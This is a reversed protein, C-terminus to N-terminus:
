SKLLRLVLFLDGGNDGSKSGRMKEERCMLGLLLNRATMFAESPNLSSMFKFRDRTGAIADPKLEILQNLMSKQEASLGTLAKVFSGQKEAPLTM